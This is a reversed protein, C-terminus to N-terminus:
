TILQLQPKARCASRASYVSSFSDLSFYLQREKREARINNQKEEASPALGQAGCAVPRTGGFPSCVPKELKRTDNCPQQSLVHVLFVAFSNDCCFPVLAVTKSDLWSLSPRKSPAASTACVGLVGSDSRVDLRRQLM